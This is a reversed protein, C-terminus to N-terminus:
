TDAIFPGITASVEFLGPQAGRTRGDKLITSMHRKMAAMHSGLRNLKDTMANVNTGIEKVNTGIENVNTGIHVEM